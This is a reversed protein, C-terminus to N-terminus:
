AKIKNRFVRKGSSDVAWYVQGGAGFNLVQHDGMALKLRNERERKESELSKVVDYINQIEVAEIRERETGQRELKQPRNFKESLYKAYVLTGDPAPALKDIEAQAQDAERQDFRTLAQYKLAVYRKATVVSDWFAKTRTVITEQIVTNAEFPLVFFRRNDQSLAMEGWTFEPVLQQQQVQVVYRPPLGSEWKDAEWGGMTKAELNGEDRDGYKNIVRDLSVFLWPYAPNRVFARLRRCRRIRNKERYNRMMTEEGPSAPDWFQWMDAVLDEMERGMFAAMSEVDWTPVDGIKEYFLQISSKYDDLGLVAGVESAGIGTLRYALWDERSMGGTPIIQLHSKM